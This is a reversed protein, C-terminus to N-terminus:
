GGLGARRVPDPVVSLAPQPAATPAPALGSRAPVDADGYAALLEQRVAEYVARSLLFNHHTVKPVEVNYLNPGRYTELMASPFRCVKDGKSYVSSFRVGPPFPGEKLRVIFPSMPTMQWISRAFVGLALGAYATTTGNHPAALTILTRVRRAGGLRKVYYRGILGGKSHGIIAMPGLDYRAYLREIKEHVLIGLEEIGLTNFTDMFGGLRFSFVGYGDRRLRHEVLRMARRTGWFGPLLLVPRECRAFDTARVIQNGRLDLDLYSLAERLEKKARRFAAAPTMM